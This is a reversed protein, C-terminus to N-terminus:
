RSVGHPYFNVIDPIFDGLNKQPPLYITHGGESVNLGQSRLWNILESVAGFTPFPVDWTMETQGTHGIASRRSGRMARWLGQRSVHIFFVITGYWM